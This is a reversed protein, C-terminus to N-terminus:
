ISASPLARISAKLVRTRAAPSRDRYNINRSPEYLVPDDVTLVPVHCAACGTLEFVEEGDRIQQKEPQTM